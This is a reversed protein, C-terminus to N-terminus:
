SVPEVRPCPSGIKRLTAGIQLEAIQQRLWSNGPDHHYRAHWFQRIRTLPTPFPL